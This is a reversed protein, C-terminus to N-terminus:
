ERRRCNCSYPTIRHTQRDTRGDTRGCLLEFRIIGFHEFKTYPIVNSIRCIRCIIRNQSQFTLDCLAFAYQLQDLPWRSNHVRDLAWGRTQISSECLCCPGNRPLENRKRRKLGVLTLGAAPPHDYWSTQGRRAKYAWSRLLCWNSLGQRAKHGEWSCIHECLCFVPSGRPRGVM